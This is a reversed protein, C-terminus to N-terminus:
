SSAISLRPSARPSVAALASVAYEQLDYFLRPIEDFSSSLIPRQLEELIVLATQFLQKWGNFLFGEFVPVLVEYSLAEMNTFLTM